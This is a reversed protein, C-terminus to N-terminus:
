LGGIIRVNTPPSPRTGSVVSPYCTSADFTRVTNAAFASDNTMNEYCLQAPIKNAHGAVNAINGGTVDPGIAPWPM